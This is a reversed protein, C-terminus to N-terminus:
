INKVRYHHNKLRLFIPINITTILISIILAIRPETLDALHGLIVAYVAFFLSGFLSNLSGMTARQRDSFNEQLLTDNATTTVGHFLSNSSDLLPSIITPYGLSILNTILSYFRSALLLKLATYKTILRDALHFSIAAGINGLMKSVGIAWLPWVTITFASRFQYISEGVGFSIMSSLSILRLRPNKLFLRFSEQLHAYPNSISPRNSSIHHLNFSLILCALQPLVSFWLVLPLSFQALITGILASAALAWQSMAGFKGLYKTLQHKNKAQDLSDYLLADNNGSYFSRGLGEFVAAIVLIWYFGGLAYFITALTFSAAGLITTAKRGMLDSFIGTPLEFIAASLMVVSFVSAGLAYSGSVKSFYIIAIPAWLVFDTFFSILTLIKVNNQPNEAM